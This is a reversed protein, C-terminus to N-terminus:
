PNPGLSGRTNKERPEEGIAEQWHQVSRRKYQQNLRMIVWASGDEKCGCSDVLVQRYEEAEDIELRNPVDTSKPKREGREIGKGNRNICRYTHACVGLCM